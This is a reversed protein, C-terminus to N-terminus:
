LLDVAKQLELMQVNLYITTTKISEHGLLKQIALLSAGSIYLNTAFSRRLTHNSVKKNWGLKQVAQAISRNVYQASLRGTRKTAFVYESDSTRIENLYYILVDRLKKALPVARYKGGKGVVHIINTEFDIDGLKLHITENVRLGSYAMFFIVTQILPIHIVNILRHIEEQTLVIKPQEMVKARDVTLAPNKVLWDNKVAYTFMSSISSIYRNRSKPKVKRVEVLYQLYCEMEKLTINELHVEGDFIGNLYEQFSRLSCEYSRITEKSYGKWELSKLFREQVEGLLM